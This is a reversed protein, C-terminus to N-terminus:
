PKRMFERQFLERRTKKGMRRVCILDVAATIGALLTILFCWTWYLVFQPGHLDDKLLTEGCVIMAVCVTIFITGLTRVVFKGRYNLKPEPPASM